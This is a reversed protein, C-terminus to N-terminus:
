GREKKEGTSRFDRIKEKILATLNAREEKATKVESTLKNREERLPKIQKVFESIERSAKAREQYIQEKKDRLPNVKDFIAKLESILEAILKREELEQKKTDM